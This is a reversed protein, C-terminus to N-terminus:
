LKPSCLAILEKFPADFEQLNLVFQYYTHLLIPHYFNFQHKRLIPNLDLDMAILHQSEDYSRVNPNYSLIKQFSMCLQNRYYTLLQKSVIKVIWCTNM